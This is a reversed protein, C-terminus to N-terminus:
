PGSSSFASAKDNGGVDGTGELDDDRLDDIGQPQYQGLRILIPLLDDRCVEIKPPDLLALDAAVIERAKVARRGATLTPQGQWNPAHRDLLAYGSKDSRTM